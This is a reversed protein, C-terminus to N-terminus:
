LDPFAAQAQEVLTATRDMRQGQVHPALALARHGRRAFGIGRQGPHLRAPCRRLLRDPPRSSLAAELNEILSTDTSALPTSDPKLFRLKM